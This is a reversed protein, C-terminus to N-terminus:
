ERAPSSLRFAIPTGAPGTTFVWGSLANPYVYGGTLFLVKEILELVDSVPAPGADNEATPTM